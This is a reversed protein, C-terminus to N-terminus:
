SGGVTYPQMLRHNSKSKDDCRVKNRQPTAGGPQVTSFTKMNSLLFFADCIKRGFCQMLRSIFTKLNLDKTKKFIKLRKAPTWTKENENNRPNRNSVHRRRKEINRHQFAKWFPRLDLRCALVWVIPRAAPVLGPFPFSFTPFAASRIKKTFFVYTSLTNWHKLWNLLYTCTIYLSDLSHFQGHGCLAVRQKKMPHPWDTFKEQTFSESNGTIAIVAAVEKHM